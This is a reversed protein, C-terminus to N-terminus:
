TGTSGFGGSGRNSICIDSDYLSDTMLKRARFHIIPVMVLQAIKDGPKILREKRGVNLLNIFLEGNYGPDIVCAGVILSKKSAISSRNKVELM